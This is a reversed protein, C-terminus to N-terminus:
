IYAGIDADASAQARSRSTLMDNYLSRITSSGTRTFLFPFIGHIVCASAALMLRAGFSWASELHEMYTEGVSRPHDTFLRDLM